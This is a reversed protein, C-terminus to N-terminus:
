TFTAPMALEESRGSVQAPFMETLTAGGTGSQLNRRAEGRMNLLIRSGIITNCAPLLLPTMAELAARNAPVAVYLLLDFIAVVTFIEKQAARVVPFCYLHCVSCQQM